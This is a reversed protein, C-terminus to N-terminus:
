YALIPVFAKEPSRRFDFLYSRELKENIQEINPDYRDYAIGGCLVCCTIAQELESDCEGQRVLHPDIKSQYYGPKTRLGWKPQPGCSIGRLYLFLDTLRKM